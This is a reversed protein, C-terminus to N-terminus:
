GATIQQANLDEQVGLTISAVSVHVRVVGASLVISGLGKELETEKGWCKQDACIPAEPREVNDLLNM